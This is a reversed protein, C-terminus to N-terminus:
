NLKVIQLDWLIKNDSFKTQPKNTTLKYNDKNSYKKLLISAVKVAINIDSTENLIKNFHEKYMIIKKFELEKEIENIFDFLISRKEILISAENKQEEKNEENQKPKYVASPNDKFGEFTRKPEVFSIKHPLYIIDKNLHMNKKVPFNLKWNPKHGSITTENLIFNLFKNTNKEFELRTMNGYFQRLKPVVKEVRKSIREFDSILTNLFTTVIQQNKLTEEPNEEESPDKKNIISKVIEAYKLANKIKKTQNNIIEVSDLTNKVLVDGKINEDNLGNRFNKIANVVQRELSELQSEIIGTLDKTFVFEFWEDFKDYDLITNNLHQLRKEIKSPELDKTIKAIITQCFSKAYETLRYKKDTEKLFFENLDRIIDKAFEKQENQRERSRIILQIIDNETFFENNKNELQQYLNFIIEGYEKKPVLLDYLNGANIQTIYDIKNNNM